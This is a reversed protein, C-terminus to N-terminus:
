SKDVVSDSSLCETMTGPLSENGGKCFSFSISRHGGLDPVPSKLFEVESTPGTRPGDGGRFNCCLSSQMGNKNRALFVCLYVAIVIDCALSAATELTTIAKTKDLNLDSRIQYWITQGIMDTYRGPPGVVIYIGIASPYM